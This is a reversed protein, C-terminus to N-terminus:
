RRSVGACYAFSFLDQPGGLPIFVGGRHERKFKESLSGETPCLDWSCQWAARHLRGGSRPKIMAIHRSGCVTCEMLSISPDILKMPRKMTSLTISPERVLSPM